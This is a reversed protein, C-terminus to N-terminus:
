IGTFGTCVDQLSDAQEPACTRPRWWGLEKRNTLGWLGWFNMPQDIQFIAHPARSASVMAGVQTPM